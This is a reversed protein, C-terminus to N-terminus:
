TRVPLLLLERVSWGFYIQDTLPQLLFIDVFGILLYNNANGWFIGSFAESENVLRLVCRYKPNELIKDTRM